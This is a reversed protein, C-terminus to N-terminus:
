EKTVLYVVVVSTSAESERMRSYALGRRLRSSTTSSLGISCSLM